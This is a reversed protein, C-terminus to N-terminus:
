EWTWRWCFKVSCPCSFLCCVSVNFWWRYVVTFQYAVTQSSKVRGYFNWVPLSIEFLELIIVNVFVCIFLVLAETDESLDTKNNSFLYWRAISNCHPHYFDTARSKNKFLTLLILKKCSSRVPYLATCCTHPCQSVNVPTQVHFINLVRTKGIMGVCLLRLCQYWADRHVAIVAKDQLWRWNVM